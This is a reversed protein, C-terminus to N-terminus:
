QIGFIESLTSNYIDEIIALKRFELGREFLSLILLRILTVGRKESEFTSM